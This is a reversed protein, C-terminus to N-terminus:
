LNMPASSSLRGTAAVHLNLSTHVRDLEDRNELTTTIYTSLIKTKKRYDLMLKALKDGRKAVSELHKEDTSDMAIGRHAFVQTVQKPSNMNFAVDAEKLIKTELVELDETYTKKAKLLKPVDVMIGAREMDWLIKVIPHDVRDYLMPIDPDPSNLCVSQKYPDGEQKPRLFKDALGYTAFVDLAAYKGVENAPYDLLTLKHRGGIKFKDKFEVMEIGLEEKARIKLKAAKTVDLDFGLVCTDFVENHIYVGHNYLFHMDFKANHLYARLKKDNVLPKLIEAVDNVSLNVNDWALPLVVAMGPSYLSIMLLKDVTWLLGTTETDLAYGGQKKAHTHFKKIIYKADTVNKPVVIEDPNFFMKESM